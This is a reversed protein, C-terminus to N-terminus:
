LQTKFLKNGNKPKYGQKLYRIKMQLIIVM